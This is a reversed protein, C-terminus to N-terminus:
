KPGQPRTGTPSDASGLSAGGQDHPWFSPRCRSAQRPPHNLEASIHTVPLLHRHPLLGQVRDVPLGQRALLAADVKLVLVVRACNRRLDAQESLECRPEEQVAVREGTVFAPVAMFVAHKRVASLM